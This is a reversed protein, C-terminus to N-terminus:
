LWQWYRCHYKRQLNKKEVSNQVILSSSHSCTLECSMAGPKSKTV